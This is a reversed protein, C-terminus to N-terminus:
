IAGGFAVKLVAIISAVGGIWCVFQNAILLVAKTLAKHIYDEVITRMGLSMHFFGTGLLLVVLVTNPGSRLWEVTTHYDYTPSALRLGSGVAWLVLVALAVATVRQGIFHGVGHKAAGMGRVRGLPTRYSTM